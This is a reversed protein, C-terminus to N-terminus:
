FSIQLPAECGELPIVLIERTPNWFSISFVLRSDDMERLSLVLEAYDSVCKSLYGAVCLFSKLLLITGPTEMDLVCEVKAPDTTCGQGAKIVHRVIPLEKTGWLSKSMKLTM